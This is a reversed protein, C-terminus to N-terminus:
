PLGMGGDSKGGGSASSDELLPLNLGSTPGGSPLTPEGPSTLVVPTVLFLDFPLRARAPECPGSQEELPVVVITSVVFSLVLPPFLGVNSQTM